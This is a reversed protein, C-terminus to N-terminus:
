QWSRIKKSIFHCILFPVKGLSRLFECFRKRVKTQSCYESSECWTEVQPNKKTSFPLCLKMAPLPALFVLTSLWSPILSSALAEKRGQILFIFLFLCRERLTVTSQFSFCAIALHFPTVLSMDSELVCAEISIFDWM